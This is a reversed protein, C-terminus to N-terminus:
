AVIRSLILEFMKDQNDRNMYRFAVEDVYKQLHKPSVSIHTGKITRKLNSWFNEVTNTHAEGRKFENAVHNIIEHKYFDVELGYYASHSDTIIVSQRDVNERVREKFTKADNMVKARVEGGRCVFGMVGVKNDAIGEEKMRKRESNHKNKFKGGHYSEDVEIVGFLPVDNKSAMLKKVQHSMRLATKYCVNITREIEKASVGNRTISQMFIVLFWHTLPTSSKEFVTDAMPSIQHSCDPCQYCKRGKVRSYPKIGECKPCVLNKYRLEFLKDLCADNDPYDLRFENITYRKM